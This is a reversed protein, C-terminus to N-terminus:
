CGLSKVVRNRGQEKAAYLAEDAKQILTEYDQGALPYTALGISITIKLAVDHYTITTEQLDKRFREAREQATECDMDPLLLLFEEGGYRCAIDTERTFEQLLRAVTQLVLDGAGHGYTDNIRKFHDIDLMLVSIPKERRKTLNFEREIFEFLYRRNHLGTLPDRIAQEQLETKLLTIEDLREQLEGNLTRLKLESQKLREEAAKRESVDEKFAIYNVIKEHEDRIPAIMTFEWYLSDDKRKNLLEGRWPLGDKITAWMEQYVDPPMKGSKLNRTNMGIAETLSYGTLETFYPNVYEIQGGLNTIMISSPSQEIAQYLRSLETNLRLMEASVRQSNMLIFGVTLSIDFFILMLNSLINVSRGELLGGDAPLVFWGVLRLMSLLGFVLLIGSLFRAPKQLPESDNKELHGIMQLILWVTPITFFLNRVLASPYEFTFYAFFPLLVFPLLLNVFSTKEDGGFRKIAELRFVSAFIAVVNGFVFSLFPPLFDQMALLGYTVAVCFMAAAWYSYGPYTKQVSRFIFLVLVLSFNIFALGVLLTRVDLFTLM